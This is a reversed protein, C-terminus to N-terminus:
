IPRQPKISLKQEGTPTTKCVMEETESDVNRMLCMQYAKYDTLIFRIQILLSYLDAVHGILYPWPPGWTTESIM